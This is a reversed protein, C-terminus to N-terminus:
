FLSPACAALSAVLLHVVTSLQQSAVLAQNIEIEVGAYVRGSFQRRLATTHGDTWGAYPYNRRVRWGFKNSALVQRWRACLDAELLRKPDYLLGIEATRCRGDLVPTFSHISLHLVPSERTAITHEIATRVQNRFPLYYQEILHQRQDLSLQNVASGHLSPHNLSRNHDIVLRSVKAGYLPSRIRQALREAVWWAGKDFGRHSNLLDRCGRYITRLEPPVRPTAHECTLIVSKFSRM